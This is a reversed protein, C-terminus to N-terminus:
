EDSSTGEEVCVVIRSEQLPEEGGRAYLAYCAELELRGEREQLSVSKTLTEFELTGAATGYRTLIRKGESLALSSSLAGKKSVELGDESLKLLGKVVGEPLNEEYSVFHHGSRFIYKGRASTIVPEQWVGDLMHFGQITLAVDKTM